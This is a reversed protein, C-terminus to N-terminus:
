YVVQFRTLLRGRQDPLGPARGFLYDVILRIDDGKFYYGFGVLWNETSDGRRSLNPDFHERRVAVQFKQPVLYLAATLQWSEGDFSPDPLRNAPRFHMRLLESSLEVLGARWVADVGWGDRTGTFLQDLPGGALAGFAFGPKSVATDRTHLGGAGLTLRGAAPDDFATASAHATYHFQGNDNASTNAGTGNAVMAAYNLRQPVLEGFVAVGIQRSDGIREAGLSREVMPGKYEVALLEASYAPKLQGVRVNAAPFRSWNLYIENAQTRLGNAPVTTGAGFEGDVRAEFHEAFSAILSLRSRRVYIRDTAGAFRQDGPGGFEAQMQTFGGITVRAEKGAPIVVGDGGAGNPGGGTLLGYSPAPVSRSAGTLRARLEANEREVAALRSELARFREDVSTADAAASAVAGVLIFISLSKRM